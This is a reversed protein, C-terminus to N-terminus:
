EAFMFGASELIDEHSRAMESKRTRSVDVFALETWAPTKPLKATPIEGRFIFDVDWHSPLDPFRRPTYSESVVSPETLPVGKLELQEWLIRRAADQPAEGLLLHSSPIM